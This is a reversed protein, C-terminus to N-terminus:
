CSPKFENRLAIVDIIIGIMLSLFSFIYLMYNLQNLQLLDKDKETIVNKLLTITDLCRKQMEEQLLDIANIDEVRAATVRGVFARHDACPHIRGLTNIQDCANSEYYTMVITTSKLHAAAEIVDRQRTFISDTAEDSFRLNYVFMDQQIKKALNIKDALSNIFSTQLFLAALLLTTSLFRCVAESIKYIM